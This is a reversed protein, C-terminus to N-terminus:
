ALLRTCGLNGKAFFGTQRLHRCDSLLTGEKHEGHNIIEKQKEM